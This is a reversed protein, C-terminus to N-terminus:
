CASVTVPIANLRANGSLPDIVDDTTLVNSNVGVTSAAVAGRTGDVGHGWGHPLSVTGLSVEDTVEATAVVEGAPSTVRVQAGDTVGAGDADDPHIQLTCRPKGKVLVDINHMWSNNSRLHRRGVLLLSDDPTEDLLAVLRPVDAAIPDPCLEVLGSTTRLIEDLRPELPGLDIGHPHARLTEIDLGEYPGTQVMLDILAEVAPLHSRAAAAEDPDLGAQQALGALMLDTVITPEADPGMGSAILILKALIDHEDLGPETAHDAAHIPPSYNVVNRVSLGYFALDFHPKALPSPSPLIVDAHRTTENLYIDVSVMFELSDLAADLRESDPCSRVPNGSNTVLARVKGPGETEIEEALGAVPMEGRVEPHNSVRSTWRGVTFGRGGPRPTGAPRKKAPRGHAPRPFMAGGPRDLNGTVTTLLDALWSALTGFETTHTGIRGYCVASPAEAFERAIRRTTDAPIRTHAAVSEATFPRLLELARDLGDLDDAVAGPDVLGLADIETVLAALWLADTGPRIALHEDAAAASKTSRPDVVVIRGGRERIAEMRGPFDPATCLSGNSEFPNAGLMLLYDTRDLDPIPLAGANGFLHGSSVHKPMQDVTSASYLNKTQFAKVLQAGFLTGAITHASPNGLYIAVADRDGDAWIRGLGDAVAQWAEAWTVPVFEGNRKVLPTRVRDPDAHLQKLTSGKPCIFGKSFVDDRDGRIRTVAGEDDTTIELGCTAECLPCTRFHTPM